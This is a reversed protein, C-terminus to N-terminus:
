LLHIAWRSRFNEEDKSINGTDQSCEDRIGPAGTHFDQKHGAQRSGM